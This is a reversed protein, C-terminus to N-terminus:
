CGAGLWDIAEVPNEFLKVLMGRNNAVIQGFRRPDLIPKRLVFAFMPIIGKKYLSNVCSEATFEGYFFREIFEPEGTLARGDVIIKECRQEAVADVIELFSRTAEEFSFEGAITVRMVDPEPTITVTMGM